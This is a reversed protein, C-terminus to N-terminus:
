EWIFTLGFGFWGSNEQRHAMPGAAAPATWGSVGWKKIPGSRPKGTLPEVFGPEYPTRNDERYFDADRPRSMDRPAPGPAVVEFQREGSPTQRIEVRPQAQAVGILAFAVAFAGITGAGLTSTVRRM